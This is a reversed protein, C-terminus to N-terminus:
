ENGGQDGGQTWFDHTTWLVITSDVDIFVLVSDDILTDNEYINIQFVGV